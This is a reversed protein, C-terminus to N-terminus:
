LFSNELKSFMDIDSQQSNWTKLEGKTLKM